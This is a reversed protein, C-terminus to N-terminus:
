VIDLDGWTIFWNDSDAVYQRDIDASNVRACFHIDQPFMKRPVPLFGHKYFLRNNVNNPLSLISIADASKDRANTQIYKLFKKYVKRNEDKAIIEMVYLVKIGKKETMATIMYGALENNEDTATVIDYNGFPKDLYRWKLYAQDRVVAIKDSAFSSDWIKDFDASFSNIDRIIKISNDQGWGSFLKFFISFGINMFYSVFSTLINKGLFKSLFPFFKIPKILIPFKAIKFWELRNIFGRISQSNPFGFIIKCDDKETEAFVKKALITFLGKGRAKIDTVTATSVGGNIRTGQYCMPFWMVAYHAVIEGSLEAVSVGSDKSFKNQFQWLWTKCIAEPELTDPFNNFFLHSIQKGDGKKYGRLIIDNKIDSM